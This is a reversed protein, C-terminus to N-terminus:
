MFSCNLAYRNAQRPDFYATAHQFWSPSVLLFQNNFKLLETFSNNFMGAM